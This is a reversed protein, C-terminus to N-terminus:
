SPGSRGSSTRGGAGPRRLRDALIHIGM